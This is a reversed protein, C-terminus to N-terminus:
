EAKEQFDENNIYWGGNVYKIMGTKEVDRLSGHISPRYGKGKLAIADLGPYKSVIKWIKEPRKKM